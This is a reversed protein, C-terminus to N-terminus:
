DIGAAPAADGRMRRRVEARQVKGSATRPLSPVLNVRKPCKFSAIRERAFAQLEEATVAQGPRLEVAAAVMEGWREHPVAVVAADLVAPHRRLAEEVEAPYVNEGGSVIMDKIRDTLHLFGEDDLFGGDGSAYWGDVVAEATKDPLKNYGLMISPSRIWIEGPTNRPVVNRAPDRIQLSVGPYPKGVTRLLHPRALDHDRPSLFTASGGIETMGFFNVFDCEFMQLTERLLSESMPMAGYFVGKLTPPPTGRARIEDVIARIVTPVIFSHDAHYTEILRIMGAPTVDATLVVTGFRILGMLVWSMGGVHFNPMASLINCGATLHDFDPCILEAHRTLSLAYQTVLVGKPRGTTGSTYLQLLVQDQDRPAAVPAAACSLGARLDPDASGGAVETILLMPPRSCQSAASSAAPAFELDHILLRTNSDELQYAIEEATLRWNLPVIVAGARVAGLLVPVFLDNNKGLYAVRDGRTLGRERLLGAFANCAADLQAYSLSRGRDPFVIAPRDPCRQAGLHPIDGIWIMSAIRDLPPGEVHSLAAAPMTTAFGTLAQLPAHM